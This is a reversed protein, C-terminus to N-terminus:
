APLEQIQLGNPDLKKIYVINEVAEFSLLDYVSRGHLPDSSTYVQANQQRDLNRFMYLRQRLHIAKGRTPLTVMVGHDSALSRECAIKCDDYTLINTSLPM